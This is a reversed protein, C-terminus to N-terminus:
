EKASQSSSTTDLNVSPATRSGEDAKFYAKRQFDGASAILSEPLKRISANYEGVKENFAMRAVNIRNETGELQAQLELYQDSSRLNPYSEVVLMLGKINEGLEQQAKALSAMYAEDELHLATNSSMEKLKLSENQVAEIQSRLRTIDTLTKGEHETFSKVTKVLNPILDARRQYNSEVQAWASLVDEEKEVLANYGFAFWLLSGLVPLGILLTSIFSSFSTNMEGVKGSQNLTESVNQIIQEKPTGGESLFWFLAFFFLLAAGVLLPKVPIEAHYRPSTTPVSDTLGLSAKLTSAQEQTLKGNAQMAAIKTEFKM